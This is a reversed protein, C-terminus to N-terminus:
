SVLRLPENVVNAAAISPTVHVVWAPRDGTNDIRTAMTDGLAIAHGAPVIRESQALHPLADWHEVLEGHVVHLVGPSRERAIWATEPSWALYWAEYRVTRLLLQPTTLDPPPELSLAHALGAAIETLLLPDILEPAPLLSPHM